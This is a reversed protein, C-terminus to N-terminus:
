KNGYFWDVPSSKKKTAVPEGQAFGGGVARKSLEVMLKVLVPHNGVGTSDLLNRLEQEEEPSLFKKIALGVNSLAEQADSGLMQNAKKAWESVTKQFDQWQANQREQYWKILREATEKDLKTEKAINIFEKFEETDKLEDPVDIEKPDFEETSDESAEEGDESEGEQRDSEASEGKDVGEKENETDVPETTEEGDQDNEAAESLITKELNEESM